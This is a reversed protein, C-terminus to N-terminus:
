EDRLEYMRYPLLLKEYAKAQEEVLQYCVAKQQDIFQELMMLKSSDYKKQLIDVLEYQLKLAAELYSKRLAIEQKQRAMAKDYFGPFRDKYAKRNQDIKADYLGSFHVELNLKCESYLDELPQLKSLELELEMNLESLKIGIAQISENAENMALIAAPSSAIKTAYDQAMKSGFTETYKNNMFEKVVQEMENVLNDIKKQHLDVSERPSDWQPLYNLALAQQLYDQVSKNEGLKVSQANVVMPLLLLMIVAINKM